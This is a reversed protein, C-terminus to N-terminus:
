FFLRSWRIYIPQEEIYEEQDYDPSLKRLIDEPPLVVVIEGPKALGLKERAEREAFEPSDVEQKLKLLEAQEKELRELKKQAEGALGGKGVLVLTSRFMFFTIVLCLVLLIRSKWTATQTFLEKV